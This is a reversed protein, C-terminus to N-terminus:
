YVFVSLKWEGNIKVMQTELVTDPDPDSSEATEDLGGLYVTLQCETESVPLVAISCSSWDKNYATDPKFNANIGLVTETTYHPRSAAESTDATATEATDEPVDVYIQRNKYVAMGNGDINTLIREAESNVFTSQVLEEIEALSSYDTSNVTYIGDDPLNGYPEDYHPLGETVFLRVIEYNNKVLDHAAYQCEEVLEDTPKFAPDASSTPASSTNGSGKNLTMVAVIALAIAAVAVIITAILTTKSSNNSSKNTSM